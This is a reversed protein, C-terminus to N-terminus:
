GRAPSNKWGTTVRGETRGDAPSLDKMAVPQHQRHKAAAQSSGEETWRSCCFFGVRCSSSEHLLGVGYRVKGVYMGIKFGAAAAGERGAASGANWLRPHVRM